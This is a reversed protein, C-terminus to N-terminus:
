KDNYATIDGRWRSLRVSLRGLKLLKGFVVSNHLESTPMHSPVSNIENSRIFNPDTLSKQHLQPIQTCIRFGFANCNCSMVISIKICATNGFTEDHYLLLSKITLHLHNPAHVDYELIDFELIHMDCRFICISSWIHMSIHTDRKPTNEM